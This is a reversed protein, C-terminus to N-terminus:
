NPSHCWTIGESTVLCNIAQDFSHSPLDSLVQFPFALGAYITEPHDLIFRDYYGGGYGLRKGTLSFALGPTLCLDIFDTFVQNRTPQLIGWKDPYLQDLNDVRIAQMQNDIIKPILVSVKRNILELIISRTEVESSFSYYCFVVQPNLQQVLAWLHRHIAQTLQERDIAQLADRQQRMLKRLAKKETIIIMQDSLTTM